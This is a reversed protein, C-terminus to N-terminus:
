KLRSLCSVQDAAIEFNDPYPGHRRNRWIENDAKHHRIEPCKKEEKAKTTGNDNRDSCWLTPVYYTFHHNVLM